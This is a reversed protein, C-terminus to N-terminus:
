RGTASSSEPPMPRRTARCDRWGCRSRSCIRSRPTATASPSSRRCATSRADSADVPRNPPQPDDQRDPRGPRLADAPRPRRGQARGEGKLKGFTIIQAVQGRGYRQRSMNFSRAAAPKASTSTSTPCRCASPTSSANSCCATSRAPRPRHDDAGLRRGIGRGLRAGAGGPDGPGQGMPHLRRRDPFLRRLGHKAIVGLEIRRAPRPLRDSRRRRHRSQRWGRPRARGRGARDLQGRRPRRTAPSARCSRSARRRRTPADGPSSSPTPRRRRCTPSAPRADGNAPKLWHEPNSRRREETDVYAGDAICLMVDHAPHVAATSSARGPQDRGAAPRARRRADILRPKPKATEIAEGSRSLRSMCGARPVARGAHRRLAAADQGDALLRALAGEAGATLAILGDTRGALGPLTLHPEDAADCGLHADSVIASSTTTAPRTRRWCCWGTARDDAGSPTRSVRATRARGARRHDAPGRRRPCADSFEMAGFLNNRDALAVAPLKMRAARRAAITEPSM